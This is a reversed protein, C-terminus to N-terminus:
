CFPMKMKPLFNESGYERWLKQLDKNPHNGATLQFSSSNIDAKTDKALGLFRKNAPICDYSIVGMEPKRNKYEWLLQKKRNVDM